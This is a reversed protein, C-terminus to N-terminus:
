IIAKWVKKFHLTVCVRGFKFKIPEGSDDKINIRISDIDRVAVKRYYPKQFIINVDDGYAAKDDISVSRLFNAYTNGVISPSVVDSYVFLSHIGAKIDPLRTGERYGKKEEEETLDAPEISEEYDDDTWQMWDPRPSFGLLEELEWNLNANTVEGLVSKGFLMRVLGTPTKQLMPHVEETSFAEKIGNNVAEILEDLTKYNGSYFGYNATSVYKSKLFFLHQNGHVNNWSKTYTIETLAVQYEDSLHLTTPLNTLYDSIRNERSGESNSPLTLYFSNTM